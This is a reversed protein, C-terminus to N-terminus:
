SGQNVPLKKIWHKTGADGGAAAGAESDARRQGVSVLVLMLPVSRGEEVEGQVLDTRSNAGPETGFCCLPVSCFLGVPLCWAHLPIILEARQEFVM